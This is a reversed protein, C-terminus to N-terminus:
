EAPTVPTATADPIIGTVGTKINSFLALLEAKQAPTITDSALLLELQELKAKAQTFEDAVASQIEEAATKLEEFAAMTAEQNKKLQNIIASSEGLPVFLQLTELLAKPSGTYALSVQQSQIVIEDGANKSSSYSGM